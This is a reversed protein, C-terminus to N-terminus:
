LASTHQQAGLKEEADQMVCALGFMQVGFCGRGRQSQSPSRIGRQGVKLFQTFEGGVDEADEGVEGADGANRCRWCRAKWRGKCGKRGKDSIQGGFLLNQRHASMAPMDAILRTKQALPAPAVICFVDCIGQQDNEAPKYVALNSHIGPICDEESKANAACSCALARVSARTRVRM